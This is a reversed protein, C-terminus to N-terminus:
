TCLIHQTGEQIKRLQYRKPTGPHLKLYHKKKQNTKGTTNLLWYFICTCYPRTKRRNTKRRNLKVVSTWDSSCERSTTRWQRLKVTRERNLRKAGSKKKLKLVGQIYFTFLVPVLYTLIIFYVANQLSFCPSYICHKFYETGINISYIYLICRKSTLSYTGLEKRTHM